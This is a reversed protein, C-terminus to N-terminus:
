YHGARASLVVCSIFRAVRMASLGDPAAFRLGETSIVVGTRAVRFALSSRRSDTKPMHSVPLADVRTATSDRRKM